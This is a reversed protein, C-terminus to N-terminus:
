ILPQLLPKRPVFIGQYSPIAYINIINNHSIVLFHLTNSVPKTCVYVLVRWQCRRRRSSGCAGAAAAIAQFAARPLEFLAPLAGVGGARRRGRRPGRRGRAARGPLGRPPRPSPLTRMRARRRGHVPNVSPAGLTRDRRQKLCPPVSDRVCQRGCQRVAAEPMSAGFREAIETHLPHATTCLTAVHGLEPRM